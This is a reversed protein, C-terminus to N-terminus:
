FFYFLNPVFFISNTSEVWMKVTDSVDVVECISEEDLRLKELLKQWDESSVFASADMTGPCFIFNPLNRLKM